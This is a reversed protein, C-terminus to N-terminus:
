SYTMQIMWEVMKNLVEFFTKNDKTKHETMLLKVNENQVLYHVSHVLYGDWKTLWCIMWLCYTLTQERILHTLTRKNIWTIFKISCLFILWHVSTFLFSENVKLFTILTHISFFTSYRWYTDKQTDRHSFTCIQLLIHIFLSLNSLKRM